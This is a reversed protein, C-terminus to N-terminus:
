ERSTGREHCRHAPKRDRRDTTFVHPAAIQHWHRKMDVTKSLGGDLDPVWPSLWPRINFRPKNAARIVVACVASVAGAHNVEPLKTCSDTRGTVAHCDRAVIRTLGKWFAGPADNFEVRGPVTLVNVHQKLIIAAALVGADVRRRARSRM